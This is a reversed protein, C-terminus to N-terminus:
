EDDQYLSERSDDLIVPIQPDHSLAWESWARAKEAPTLKEETIGREALPRLLEELSIGQAEARAMLAQILEATRPEVQITTLETM